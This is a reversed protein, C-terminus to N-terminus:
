RRRILRMVFTGLADAAIIEAELPSLPRPNAADLPVLPGIPASSRQAERRRASDITAPGYLARMIDIGWEPFETLPLEAVRGRHRRGDFKTSM